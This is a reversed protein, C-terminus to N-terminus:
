IERFRTVIKEAQRAILEAPVRGVEELVKRAAEKQRASEQEHRALAEERFAAFKRDVGAAVEKHIAMSSAATLKELEKVEARAKEIIAGADGEVSLLRDILSEM